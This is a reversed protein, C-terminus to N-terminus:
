LSKGIPTQHPRPFPTVTDIQTRVKLSMTNINYLKTLVIDQITSMHCFLLVATYPPFMGLCLLAGNGVLWRGVSLSLCVSLRLCVTVDTCYQMKRIPFPYCLIHLILIFFLIVKIIAKKSNTFNKYVLM